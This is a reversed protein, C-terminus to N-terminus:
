QGSKEFGTMFGTLYGQKACAQAAMMSAEPWPMSDVVIPPGGGEPVKPILIRANPRGYCILGFQDLGVEYVTNFNAANGDFHGGLNLPNDHVCIASATRNGDAWTASFDKFTSGVGHIDAGVAVRYTVQAGSCVYQIVSNGHFGTMRGAIFGRNTCYEGAARNATDWTPFEGEIVIGRNPNNFLSQLYGNEYAAYFLKTIANPDWPQGMVEQLHLGDLRNVLCSTIKTITSKCNPVSSNNVCSWSGRSIVGTLFTTNSSSDTFFVPGGSDAPACIQGLANGKLSLGAPYLGLTQNELSLVFRPVVHDVPILGHRFDTPFSEPVPPPGPQYYSVFGKGYIDVLQGKLDPPDATLVPKQVFPYILLPSSLYIMALDYGRSTPKGSPDIESGMIYVAASQGRTASPAHSGYELGGAGGYTASVTAQQPRTNVPFCHGATLVWNENMLVGSCTGIATQVSVLGTSSEAAPTVSTGGVVEQSVKKPNEECGSLLAILTALFCLRVRKQLSSNM